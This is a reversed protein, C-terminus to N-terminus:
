ESPVGQYSWHAEFDRKVEAFSNYWKGGLKAIITKATRRVAKSNDLLLYALARIKKAPPKFKKALAPRKRTAVM